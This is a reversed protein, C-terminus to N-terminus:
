SGGAPLKAAASGSGEAKVTGFADDNERGIHVARHLTWRKSKADPDKNPVSALVRPAVTFHPKPERRGLWQHVTPRGDADEESDDRESPELVYTPWKEPDVETAADPEVCYRGSYFSLIRGYKPATLIYATSPHKPITGAPTGERIMRAVDTASAYRGDKYYALFPRRQQEAIFGFVKAGNPIAGVAFLPLFAANAWRAPLRENVRRLFSWWALVLLPLVPLFYRDLVKPILLAIALTMLVWLGWLPRRRALGVGLVVITAGLVTNVGPGLAMGFAAKAISSEALEPVNRTFVARFTTRWWGPKLMPEEYAGVAGTGGGSSPAGPNNRRPDRVFFAVLVALVAVAMLSQRWRFRGRALSWLLTLVIAAVLAVMAPRMTVAIVLGAMLLLWDYWRVSRPPSDIGGSKVRARGYFVAEYGALFATVGFLFPLDTLLEFCNRYFLRSMGVGVTVLVATPRDAALLILRYVLALTGLGLVSAILLHPVLSGGPAVKYVGAYLVPLGPYALRHSKGHYTYGKGEALNQGIALYLASDPELRWQANFGAVYVLFLGFFLWRRYRDAFALILDSALTPRPLIAPAGHRAPPAEAAFARPSPSADAAQSM